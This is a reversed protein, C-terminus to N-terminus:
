SSVPVYCFVRRLRALPRVAGDAEVREITVEVARYDTPQNDPRRVRPDAPDVYYVEIRQRWNQFDDGPAQAITARLVAGGNGKGLENGFPDRPPMSTYGNYDGTDNFRERGKGNKEFNTPSLATDYPEGVTSYRAGLVEDILQSAMGQAITQAVADNTTRLIGETTLLLVAGALATISLAVMAEVLSFANRRQSLKTTSRM